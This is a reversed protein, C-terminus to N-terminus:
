SFLITSVLILNKILPISETGDSVLTYGSLTKDALTKSLSIVVLYYMGLPSFLQLHFISNGWLWWFSVYSHPMCLPLQPSRPDWMHLCQFAVKLYLTRWFSLIILIGFLIQHIGLCGTKTDMRLHIILYLIFLIILQGAARSQQSLWDGKKWARIGTRRLRAVLRLVLLFDLISKICM